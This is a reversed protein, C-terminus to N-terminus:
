IWEVIIGIGKKQFHDIDSYFVCLHKGLNKLM